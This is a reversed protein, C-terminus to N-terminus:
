MAQDRLHKDKKNYRCLFFLLFTLLLHCFDFVLFLFLFLCVKWIFNFGM